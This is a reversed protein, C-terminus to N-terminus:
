KTGKTLQQIQKIIWYRHNDNLQLNELMWKYHKVEIRFNPNDQGFAGVLMMTLTELGNTAEPHFEKAMVIIDAIVTYNTKTLM